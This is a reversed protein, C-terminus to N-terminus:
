EDGAMDQMQKFMFAKVIKKEGVGLRKYESPLIHHFLFLYYM